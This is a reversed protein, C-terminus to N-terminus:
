SKQTIAQEAKIQEKRQHVKYLNSVYSNAWALGKAKKAESRELARRVQRSENM